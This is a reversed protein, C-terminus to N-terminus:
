KTGGLITVYTETVENYKQIEVTWNLSEAFAVAEVFDDFQAVLGDHDVVIYDKM